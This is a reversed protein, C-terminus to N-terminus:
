TSCIKSAKTKGIGNKLELKTPATNSRNKLRPYKTIKRGTSPRNSFNSILCMDAYYKVINKILKIRKKISFVLWNLSEYLNQSMHSNSNWNGSVDLRSPCKYQNVIIDLDLFYYLDVYDIANPLDQKNGIILFCKSELHPHKFLNHLISKAKRMNTKTESSDIVFIIGYSMNYYHHWINRMSIDGGLESIKLNIKNFSAEYISCGKTAYFDKRM